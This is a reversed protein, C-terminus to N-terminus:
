DSFPDEDKTNTEAASFLLDLVCDDPFLLDPSVTGKFVPTPIVQIVPSPAVGNPLIFDSQSPILSPLPPEEGVYYLTNTKCNNKSVDYWLVIWVNQCVTFVSKRTM